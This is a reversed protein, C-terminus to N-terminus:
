AALLKKISKVWGKRHIFRHLQLNGNIIERKTLQSIEEWNKNFIYTANNNFVSELVFLNKDKFGFVMYGNFGGRGTACFDPKFNSITDIRNQIVPKNGKPQKNLSAAVKSKVKNWPYKGPPLIEWNVKISKVKTFATLKKGTLECEGFLELFLNICHLIEGHANPENKFLRSILIKDPNNKVIKLEESPPDVFQRPYRKYPIDVIKSHETGGWDKWFWERQMYATEKPLHKLKNFKGRSNFISITGLEAPLIQEGEKLEKSFGIQVLKDSNPKVPLTIYFEEGEKVLQLYKKPDRIRSKKIFM